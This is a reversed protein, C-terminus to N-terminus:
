LGGPHLLQQVQQQLTQVQSNLTTIQSQQSTQSNTLTTNLGNVQTQLSTQATATNTVTTSLNNIQTTLQSISTNLTQQYAQFQADLQAAKQAFQTDLQASLTNFDDQTVYTGDPIAWPPNALLTNLQSQTSNASTQVASITQDLSTLNNALSALQTNLTAQQATLTDIAVQTQTTLTDLESQQDALDAQLSTQAALSDNLTTQLSDFNTSLNDVNAQTSTQSQVLDAITAQAEVQVVHLSALQTTLDAVDAAQKSTLNDLASQTSQQSIHLGSIQDQLDAAQASATAQVQDVLTALAAHSDSLSNLEAAQTALNNQVTQLSASLSTTTAVGADIQGQLGAILTTYDSQVGQIDNTLEQRLQTQDAGLGDIRSQLGAILGQSTQTVTQLDSVASHITQQDLQVAGLQVQLAQLGAESDGKVQNVLQSLTEHSAGLNSLTTKATAVDTQVQALTTQLQASTATGADLQTQVDDKLTQYNAKITTIEGTLQNRLQTQGFGLDHVQTQLGAILSQSSQAITQLDSVASKVTEHDLKLSNIQDRLDSVNSQSDSKVQDVLQSLASTSSSLNTLHTTQTALESRTQNLLTQLNNTTAAGANIQAQVDTKLGQYNNTITTIEGSLQDRLSAHSTGLDDVRTTLNNILTQSSTNIQNLSTVLEAKANDTLGQATTAARLELETLNTLQEQRLNTIADGLKTHANTINTLQTQLDNVSTAQNQTLNALEAKLQALQDPTGRFNNIQTQLKTSSNNYTTKLKNLETQLSIQTTSISALAQNTNPNSQAFSTEAIEVGMQKNLTALKNVDWGPPMVLYVIQAKQAATLEAQTQTLNRLHLAPQNQADTMLRQYTDSLNPPDLVGKWSDFLAQDDTNMRISSLSLLNGQLQGSLAMGYVIPTVYPQIDTSPLQQGAKYDALFTQITKKQADTPRSATLVASIRQMEEFQAETQFATAQAPAVQKVLDYDLTYTLDSPLVGAEIKSVLLAHLQRNSHVSALDNVDTQSIVGFSALKALQAFDSVSLPVQGLADSVTALYQQTDDVATLVALQATAPAQLRLLQLTSYTRIADHQYDEVVSRSPKQGHNLQKDLSGLKDEYASVYSGLLSMITATTKAADKNGHENAQDAVYAAESVRKNAFDLRLNERWSSLPALHSVLSEEGRKIGYGLQGPAKAAYAPLAGFVVVTITVVPVVWFRKDTVYRSKSAKKVGKEASKLFIKAKRVYKTTQNM